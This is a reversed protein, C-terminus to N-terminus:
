MTTDRRVMAVVRGRERADACDLTSTTRPTALDYMKQLLTYEEQNNSTNTTM